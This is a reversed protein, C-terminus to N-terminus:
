FKGTDPLIDPIQCGSSVRGSIRYGTKLIAPYGTPWIDLLVAIQDMGLFYCGKLGKSQGEVKLGVNSFSTLFRTAETVAHGRCGGVSAIVLVVIACGQCGVTVLGVNLIPALLRASSASKSHSFHGKFESWHIKTKNNM